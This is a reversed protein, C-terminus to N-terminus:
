AAEETAPIFHFRAWLALMLLPLTRLALRRTAEQACAARCLLAVAGYEVLLSALDPLRSPDVRETPGVAYFRGVLLFSITALLALISLAALLPHTGGNRQKWWNPVILFAGGVAIYAAYSFTYNDDPLAPFHLGPGVEPIIRRALSYVVFMAATLAFTDSGAQAELFALCRPVWLVCSVIGLFIFTVNDAAAIKEAPSFFALLCLLALACLAVYATFPAPPRASPTESLKKRPKAM